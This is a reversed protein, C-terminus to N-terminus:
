AVRTMSAWKKTTRSVTRSLFLVGAQGHGLGAQEHIGDQGAGTGRGVAGAGDHVVAPRAICGGAAGVGAAPSLVAFPQELAM